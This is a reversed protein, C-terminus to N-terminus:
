ALIEPTSFGREALGRALAVFPKVDQSIHAIASYPKGFRVPITDTRAPANMLIATEHGRTLREYSRTSADGQIHTRRAEQWGAKVAGAIDRALSETAAETPLDLTWTSLAASM